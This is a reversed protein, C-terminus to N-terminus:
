TVFCRLHGLPIVFTVKHANFAPLRDWITMINVLQACLLSLPQHHVTHDLPVNFAHQPIKQLTHDLQVYSLLMLHLLASTDLRARLISM